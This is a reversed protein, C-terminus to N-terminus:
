FTPRNFADALAAWDTAENYVQASVRVWLRGDISFLPVETAANRLFHQRWRAEAERTAHENVSHPLPLTAMAGMASEPTGVDVGWQSAVARSATVAQDRLADRYRVAGLTEIFDLAACISLKASADRTGTWGFEAELGEGYFNSIVAPHLDREAGDRVCLFAAGKPACLWKHLNGTYWTAGQEFLAAIDLALMGPAHAGDILVDIGRAACHELLPGLPTVVALPSFVHDVILLRAGGSLAALYAGVVQEPESLPWPVNAMVPVIGEREACFRVTNKVAPYAHNAIVV